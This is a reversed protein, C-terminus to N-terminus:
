NKKERLINECRSFNIYTSINNYINTNIPNIKVKYDSVFIEYIKDIDYDEMVKDLNDIIEEKAKESKEQIIINNNKIINPLLSSSLITTSIINTKSILLKTSPINSVLISNSLINTILSTPFIFTSYSINYILRIQTLKIENKSKILFNNDCNILFNVNDLNYFLTSLYYNECNEQLYGILDYSNNFDNIIDFNEDLKM